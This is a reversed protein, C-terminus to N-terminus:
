SPRKIASGSRRAAAGAKSIPITTEALDAEGSISYLPRLRGELARLARHRIYLVGGGRAAHRVEEVRLFSLCADRIWCFRYDWQPNWRDGGSAIDHSGRRDGRDARLDAGESGTGLPHTRGRTPRYLDCGADVAGMASRTREM